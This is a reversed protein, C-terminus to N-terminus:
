SQTSQMCGRAAVLHPITSLEIREERPQKAWPTPQRRCRPRLHNKLMCRGASARRSPYQQTGVGGPETKRNHGKQSTQFPGNIPTSRFHTTSRWFAPKQGGQLLKRNDVKYLAIATRDTGYRHLRPGSAHWAQLRRESKLRFPFPELKGGQLDRGADGM